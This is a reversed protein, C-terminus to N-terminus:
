EEPHPLARGGVNPGHGELQPGPDQFLLHHGPDAGSDPSDTPKRGSARDGLWPGRRERGHQLLHHLRFTAPLSRFTETDSKKCTSATTQQGSQVESTKFHCPMSDATRLSVPSRATPRRPLSGTSSSPAPSTRRAWWRWTRQPPAPFQPLHRSTWCHHAVSMIHGIHITLTFDLNFFFVYLSVIISAFLNSVCQLKFHSSPPSLLLKSLM